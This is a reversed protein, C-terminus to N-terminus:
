RLRRGTSTSLISVDNVLCKSSRPVYRNHLHHNHKGFHKPQFRAGFPNLCCFLLRLQEGKAALETLTEQKRLRAGTHFHLLQQLLLRPCGYRASVRM